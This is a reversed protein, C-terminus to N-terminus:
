EALLCDSSAKYLFISFGAQEELTKATEKPTEQQAEPEGVDKAAPKKLVKAAPKEKPSVAMAEAM